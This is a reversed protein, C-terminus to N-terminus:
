WLPSQSWRGRGALWATSITRFWYARIPNRWLVGKWIVLCMRLFFFFFDKLNDNGSHLRTSCQHETIFSGLKTEYKKGFRETERFLSYAFHRHATSGKQKDTTSLMDEITGDASYKQVWCSNADRSNPTCHEDGRVVISALMTFICKSGIITRCNWQIVPTNM